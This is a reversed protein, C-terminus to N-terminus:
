SSFYLTQKIQFILTKIECEQYYGGLSTREMAPLHTQLWAASDSGALVLIINYTINNPMKIAVKVYPKSLFWLNSM